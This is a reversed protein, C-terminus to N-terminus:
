KYILARFYNRLEIVFPMPDDLRNVEYRTNPGCRHMFEMVARFKTLLGGLRRSKLVILLRDLDGLWWRSKQGILFGVDVQVDEGLAMCYLLYPFDVGADVALQLSGWFRGNVEILYPLGDASVKFEAMAVGHWEVSSFLKDMSARLTESLNVSESLVSVGGSPPKERLRRHAFWALPQGHNYLAFVGRAEGDIRQQILAPVHALWQAEDVAIVLEERSRIYRVDTGIWRGEFWIKSQAPKLVVPYQVRDLVSTLEKRSKICITTPVLVGISRAYEALACKNTLRDFADLSPFPLVPGSFLERCRLLITATVDTMPLVVAAKTDKSIRVVEASFGEPDHIPSPYVVQKWCYRSAGALSKKISEGVIVRIGRKGLSRAVALASRQGGDLVLVPPNNTDFLGM